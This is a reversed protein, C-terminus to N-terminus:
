RIVPIHASFVFTPMWMRLRHGSFGLQRAHAALQAFERARYTFVMSFGAIQAGSQALEHAAQELDEEHNFVVQVVEHGAKELSSWIYRIALNEELEAGILAIRM